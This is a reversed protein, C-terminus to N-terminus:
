STDRGKLADRIARVILDLDADSWDRATLTLGTAVSLTRTRSARHTPVVSAEPADTTSPRTESPLLQRRIGELKYGERLLRRVRRVADLHVETYRPRNGHQEPPPLLGQDAYYYVTRATVAADEKREKRIIEAIDEASLYDPM